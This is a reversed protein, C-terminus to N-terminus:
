SRHERITAAMDALLEFLDQPSPEMGGGDDVIILEKFDATACISRDRGLIFTEPILHPYGGMHQPNTTYNDPM